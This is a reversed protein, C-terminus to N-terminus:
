KPALFNVYYQIPKDAEYLICANRTEYKNQMSTQIWTKGNSDTFGRADFTVPFSKEIAIALADLIADM